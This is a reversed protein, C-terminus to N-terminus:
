PTRGPNRLLGILTALVHDDKAISVEIEVQRLQNNLETAIVKEKWRWERGALEATGTRTGTGPWDGKIHHEALRNQAVWTALTKDRLYLSTDASQGISRMIGAFAVAVVALAVLVELLTFGRQRKM